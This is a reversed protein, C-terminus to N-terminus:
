AIPPRQISEGRIGDRMLRPAESLVAPLQLALFTAVKVLGAPVNAQCPWACTNMCDPGQLHPARVISARQGTAFGSGTMCHDCPMAKAAHMTMAGHAAMAEHAAMAPCPAQAQAVPMMPLGQLVLMLCLMVNFFPTRMRARTQGQRSGLDIPFM